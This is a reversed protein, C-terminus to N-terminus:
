PRRGHHVKASRSEATIHRVECLYEEIAGVQWFSAAVLRPRALAVWIKERFWKQGESMKGSPLNKKQPTRQSVDAIAV